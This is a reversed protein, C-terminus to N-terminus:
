QVLACRYTIDSMVPWEDGTKVCGDDASHYELSNHHFTLACFSPQSHLQRWKAMFNTAMAVDRSRDCFSRWNSSQRGYTDLLRSVHTFIPRPCESIIQGFPPGNFTLFFCLYFQYKWWRPLREPASRLLSHLCKMNFYPQCSAVSGCVPCRGMVLGVVSQSVNVLVCVSVDLFLLSM